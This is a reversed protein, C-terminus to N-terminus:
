RAPAEGEGKYAPYRKKTHELCERISPKEAALQLKSTGMPCMSHVGKQEVMKSGKSM